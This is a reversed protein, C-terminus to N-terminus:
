PNAAMSDLASPASMNAASSSRMNSPTIVKSLIAKKGEPTFEIEKDSARWGIRCSAASRLMPSTCINSASMAAIIPACYTSSRASRPGNWGLTGGVYVKRDLAAGSFGHYEPTLDAPLDRHSLGLPDLNAALHGRVRYTRILMMARISDSAAQTVDADALPKGVAKSAAKIAVEMQTPDLASTLDDTTTLPWGARAWSPGHEVENLGDFDQGEYGMVNELREPSSGTRTRVANGDGAIGLV